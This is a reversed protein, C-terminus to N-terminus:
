ATQYSIYRKMYPVILSKTAMDLVVHCIGKKKKKKKKWAAGNFVKKGRGGMM